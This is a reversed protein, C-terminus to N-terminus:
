NTLIEEQSLGTEESIVKMAPATTLMVGCDTDPDKEKAERLWREVTDVSRGLELAIRTKCKVSKNVTDIAIDTLQM